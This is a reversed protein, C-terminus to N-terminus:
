AWSMTTRSRGAEPCHQMSAAAARAKYLLPRCASCFIGLMYSSLGFYPFSAGQVLTTQVIM